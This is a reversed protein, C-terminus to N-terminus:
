ADGGEAKAIVARAKDFEDTKRDAIAVVEKLTELLERAAIILQSNSQQEELDRGYVLAVIQGGDGEICVPGYLPDDTSRRWPGPTHKAQSM